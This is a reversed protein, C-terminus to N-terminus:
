VELYDPLSIFSLSNAHGAERTSMQFGVALFINRGRLPFEYRSNHVTHKDGEHLVM